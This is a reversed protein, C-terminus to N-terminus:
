YWRGTAVVWALSGNEAAADSLTRLQASVSTPGGIGAFTVIRANGATTVATASIADARVGFSAPFTWVTNISGTSVLLETCIQTGDAFRVFEGNSNEGREIQRDLVWFTGDYTAVTETDTRIYGAPLAIGTITRCAVAGLGDLNITAAGTNTGAARFRVQTGVTQSVVGATLTIANASGTRTAWTKGRLLPLDDNFDAVFSPFWGFFADAREELQAPNGTNPPTPPPTIAM